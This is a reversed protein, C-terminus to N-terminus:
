VLSSAVIPYFALHSKIGAASEIPNEYMWAVNEYIQGDIVAHFHTADGKFPCHTVKDSREFISMNLTETDFYLVPSYEGEILQKATAEEAIVHGELALKYKSPDAEITIKRTM